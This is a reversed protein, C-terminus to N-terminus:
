DWAALSTAGTAGGMETGKIPEPNPTEAPALTPRGEMREMSQERGFYAGVGGNAWPSDETEDAWSITAARASNSVNTSRRRRRGRASARKTCPPHTPGSGTWPSAPVHSARQVRQECSFLRHEPPWPPPSPGEDGEMTLKTKNEDARHPQMLADHCGFPFKGGAEPTEDLYFNRM